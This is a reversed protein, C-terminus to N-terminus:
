LPFIGGPPLASISFTFDAFLSMKLKLEAVRHCKQVKFGSKGDVSGQDFFTDTLNKIHQKNVFKVLIQNWTDWADKFFMEYNLEFSLGM